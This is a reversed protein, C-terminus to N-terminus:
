ELNAEILMPGPTKLSYRLADTLQEATRAARAEVGFGEAVKVFSIEPNDLSTL